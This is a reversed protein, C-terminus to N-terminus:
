LLCRDLIKFHENRCLRAIKLVEIKYLAERKGVEECLLVYLLNVEALISALIDVDSESAARVLHLAIQPQPIHHHRVLQLSGDDSLKLAVSRIEVSFPCRHFASCAIIEVESLFRIRHVLLSHECRHREILIHRAVDFETRTLQEELTRSAYRQLFKLIANLIALKNDSRTTREASRLQGYLASLIEACPLSYSRLGHETLVVRFTLLNIERRIEVSLVVLLQAEVELM